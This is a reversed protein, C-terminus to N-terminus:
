DRDGLYDDLRTEQNHKEWEAPKVGATNWRMKTSSRWRDLYCVAPLDDPGEEDLCSSLLMGFGVGDTEEPHEDAYESVWCSATNFAAATAIYESEPRWGRSRAYASNGWETRRYDPDILRGNPSEATAVAFVTPKSIRGGIEFESEGRVARKWYRVTQRMASFMESGGGAKVELALTRPSSEYGIPANPVILDPRETSGVTRFTPHGWPNEMDWYVSRGVGTLWETLYHKVDAEPGTDEPDNSAATM